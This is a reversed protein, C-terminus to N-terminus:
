SPWLATAVRPLTGCRTKCSTGGVRRGRDQVSPGIDAIEVASTDSITARGGVCIGQPVDANQALSGCSGLMLAAGLPVLVDIKM